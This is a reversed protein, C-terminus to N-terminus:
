RPSPSCLVYVSLNAPGSALVQWGVPTDKETAVQGNATVPATSVVSAGVASGGGGTAIEEDLCFGTVQDVGSDQAMRVLVSAVGAPGREGQPGQAGNDGKAGQPGVNGKPGAPGQPVVELEAPHSTDKNEKSDLALVFDSDVDGPALAIGFNQVSGDAWAQVLDSVDISVFQSARNALKFTFLPKGLPPMTRLSMGSESWPGDVARIQITPSGSVSRVWFRITAQAVVTGEPLCAVDFRLFSIRQAAAGTTQNSVYLTQTDPIQRAPMLSSTNVYTDDTVMVTDAAAPGACTLITALAALGITKYNRM